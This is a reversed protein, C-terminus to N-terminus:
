SKRRLRLVIVVDIVGFSSALQLYVFFIQPISARFFGGDIVNSPPTIAFNANLAVLLTQAALIAFTATAASLIAILVLWRNVHDGKLMLM